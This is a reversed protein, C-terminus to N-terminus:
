KRLTFDRDDVDRSRVTKFFGKDQGAESEVRELWREEEVLGWCFHIGGLNVLGGDHILGHGIGEAVVKGVLTVQFGRELGLLLVRDRLQSQTSDDRGLLGTHDDALGSLVNSVQAILGADLGAHALYNRADMVTDQCDSTLQARESSGIRDHCLTKQFTGRLHTHAANDRVVPGVTLSVMKREYEIDPNSARRQISPSLYRTGFARFNWKSVLQALKKWGNAKQDGVVLHTGDDSSLTQLNLVDLICRTDPHDCLLLHERLGCLANNLDLTCGLANLLGDPFDALAQKVVPLASGAGDEVVGSNASRETAGLRDVVVGGGSVTVWGAVAALVVPSAVAGVEAITAVVASGVRVGARTAVGENRFITFLDLSLVDANGRIHDSTDDAPASGLDCLNASARSSPDRDGLSRMVLSSLAHESDHSTRLGVFLGEVKKVLVKFGLLSAAALKGLLLTRREAYPHSPLPEGKHKVKRSGQLSDTM